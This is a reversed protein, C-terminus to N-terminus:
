FGLPLGEYFHGNRTGTGPDESSASTMKVNLLSEASLTIGRQELHEHEAKVNSRSLSCLVGMIRLWLNYTLTHSAKSDKIVTLSADVCRLKLHNLRKIAAEEWGPLSKQALCKVATWCYYIKLRISVFLLKTLVRHSVFSCWQKLTGGRVQNSM